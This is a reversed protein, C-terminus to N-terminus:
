FVLRSTLMACINLKFSFIFSATLRQFHPAETTRSFGNHRSHQRGNLPLSHIIIFPCYAGISYLATDPDLANM